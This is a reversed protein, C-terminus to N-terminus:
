HHNCPLPKADPYSLRTHARSHAPCAHPHICASADHDVNSCARVGFAGGAGALCHSPRREM